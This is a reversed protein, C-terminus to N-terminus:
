APPLGTHQELRAISADYSELVPPLAALHARLEALEASLANVQQTLADVRGREALLMLSMEM